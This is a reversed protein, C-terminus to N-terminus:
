INGSSWRRQSKLVFARMGERLGIESVPMLQTLYVEVARNLKQMDLLRAAADGVPYGNKFEFTGYRTQLTENNLWGHSDTQANAFLSQIGCARM